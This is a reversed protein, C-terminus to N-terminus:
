HGRRHRRNRRAPRALRSSRLPQRPNARNRSRPKSPCAANSSHGSFAPSTVIFTPSSLSWPPTIASPRPNPTKRTSRIDSGQIPEFPATDTPLPSAVCSFTAKPRAKRRPAQKKRLYRSSKPNRNKSGRSGASPQRTIKASGPALPRLRSIAKGREHRRASRCLRQCIPDLRAPRWPGATSRISTEGADPVTVPCNSSSAGKERSPSPTSSTAPRGPTATDIAAQSTTGAYPKPKGPSRKHSLHQSLCPIRMGELLATAM